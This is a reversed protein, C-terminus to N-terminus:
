ENSPVVRQYATYVNLRGGRLFGVLTLAFHKAWQVALATPASSSALVAVGQAIAKGVIEASLRGTTLLVYRSFDLGRPLAMGIVKDLANHRGVDEAFHLIERVSAIACAHVGGTARYLEGRQQFRRGLATLQAVSVTFDSQVPRCRALRDADRFTGGGGCGTGLTWRRHISEVAEDDFSGTCHLRGATEDFRIQPRPAGDRLLGESSLFGLALAELDRPLTLMALLVAGNLVLEIRREQVVVDQCAECPQCARYRRIPWCLVPAGASLTLTPLPLHGNAGDAGCSEEAGSPPAHDDPHAATREDREMGTLIPLGDPVAIVEPSQSVV